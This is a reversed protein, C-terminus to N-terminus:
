LPRYATASRSESLHSRLFIGDVIWIFTVGLLGKFGDAHNGLRHKWLPIHCAPHHCSSQYKESDIWKFVLLWLTWIGLRKCWYSHKTTRIDLSINWQRPLHNYLNQIRPKSLFLDASRSLYIISYFQLHYAHLRCPNLASHSHRDVRIDQPSAIRFCRFQGHLISIFSDGLAILHLHGTFLHKPINQEKRTQGIHSFKSQM